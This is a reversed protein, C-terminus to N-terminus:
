LIINDILRIGNISAAICIANQNKEKWTQIPLMNKLNIFEIYQLKLDKQKKFQNKIYTKLESIGAKKNKMCYNLCTYILAAKKKEKLSLLKNRSSKALGNKERITSISIIEIQANMKKVLAKVIQLQQLDKQGFFAKTPNIITFFKEVITAVGNFHGPRSKGEMERTLSGFDFKKAGEGKAYLDDVTPIYVINCNLRQLKELDLNLTNPYRHFDESQNFQTPNIFISCITIACKKKSEEILKLHGSHLAGMTPVFAVSKENRNNNLYDILKSKTKFVKM